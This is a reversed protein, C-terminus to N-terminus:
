GDAKIRPGFYMCWSENPVPPFVTNITQGMQQRMLDPKNIVVVSPPNMHCEGGKGKTAEIPVFARCNVCAVTTLVASADAANAADIM